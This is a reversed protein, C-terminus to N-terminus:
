FGWAARYVASGATMGSALKVAWGRAIKIGGAEGVTPLHIIGIDGEKPVIVRKMGAGFALAEVLPILGGERRVIMQWGEDSEYSGRLTEAPDEGTQERVWNALTMACDWEGFEFPQAAARRLFATLDAM